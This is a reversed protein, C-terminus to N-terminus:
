HSDGGAHSHTHTTTHAQIDDHRHQEVASTPEVPIGAVGLMEELEQIRRRGEEFTSGQNISLTIEGTPSIEISAKMSM